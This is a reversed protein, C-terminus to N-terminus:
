ILIAFKRYLRPARLAWRVLLLENLIVCQRQLLGKLGLASIWTFSRDLHMFLKQRSDFSQRIPGFRFGISSAHYVEEKSLAVGVVVLSVFLGRKM